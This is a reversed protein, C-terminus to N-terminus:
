WVRRARTLPVQPVSLADPAAAASSPCPRREGAGPPIILKTVAQGVCGFIAFKDLRAFGKGKPSFSMLVDALAELRKYDRLGGQEPRDPNDTASAFALPYEYWPGVQRSCHTM